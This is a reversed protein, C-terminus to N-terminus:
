IQQLNLFVFGFGLFSAPKFFHLWVAEVSPTDHLLTKKPLHNCCWMIYIGVNAVSFITELDVEGVSLTKYLSYGLPRLNECKGVCSM